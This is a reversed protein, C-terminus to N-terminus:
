GDFKNELISKAQIIVDEWSGLKNQKLVTISPYWISRGEHTHWYWITAGAGPVMLITEKGLAGAFHATSNSTTLVIDCAMILSILDDVSDFLNIDDISHIKSGISQNVFEIENAVEGYQLSLFNIKKNKLIPELLILPISKLEGSNKASSKWSIGCVKKEPRRVRGALEETLTLNDVIYPYNLGVFSDLDTRFFKGLSAIPIHEDYDDMSIPCDKDVFKYSPFSRRFVPLLKADISVIIEQPFSELQSLISGYLIQDGVGQEAWIFLRNNNKLGDWVPKSTVLPKSDLVRKLWRWEYEAWGKEFSLAELYLAALNVHSEAHNLDESIAQLYYNEAEKENGLKSNAVAYNLYVDAKNIHSYEEGIKNMEFATKCNEIAELHRGMQNLTHAKNSYGMAYQPCIEFIREYCTIANDYDKLDQFAAGRNLWASPNDPDLAITKDFADIADKSQGTKQLSLGLNFYADLYNPDLSVATNFSEISKTYMELHAYALGIENWGLTFLRDIKLIKILVEILESFKNIKKLILFKNILAGFHNPNFSLICDFIELAELYRDLGFLASGYNIMADTNSPSITIAKKHHPISSLLDGSDMFVKALNFQVSFDHSNIKEAKFLFPIAENFKKQAALALGLIYIGLFHNQSVRLGSRALKEADYLRGKELADAARMFIQNLFDSQSM